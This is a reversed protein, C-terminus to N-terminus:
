RGTGSPASDMEAMAADFARVSTGDLWSANDRWVDGVTLLGRALLTGQAGSSVLLRIATAQGGLRHLVRRVMELQWGAHTSCPQAHESTM